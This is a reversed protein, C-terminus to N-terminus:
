PQLSIGLPIDYKELQGRVGRSIEGGRVTKILLNCAHIHEEKESGELGRTSM